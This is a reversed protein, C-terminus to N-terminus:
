IRNSISSIVTRIIFAVAFLLATAGLLENVDSYTLTNILLNGAPESIYGSCASVTEVESYVPESSQFSICLYM